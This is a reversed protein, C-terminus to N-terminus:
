DRATGAVAPGIDAPLHRVVLAIAEGASDAEGIVARRSPGCVRFRGDQLPDVFPVVWTFPYGTCTTFHLSRHSTFPYLQRLKPEAYAAEVLDRVAPLPLGARMSERLLRWKVAVADAPGREHAQALEGFTVFPCLEHLEHLSAGSRWAAAARAVEHLDQTRGRILEVGRSWGSVMFWREEAGLHVALPQRHAAPGSAAGAGTDTGAGAEDGQLEGVDVGLDTAAKALAPRLGGAAVLDPYLETDPAAGQGAAGGSSTQSM